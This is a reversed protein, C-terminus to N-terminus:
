KRSRVDSSAIRVDSNALDIEIARLGVCLHPYLQHIYLGDTVAVLSRDWIAEAVWETGGEILMHEWLWACGWQCLVELFSIRPTAVPAKRATSTVRFVGPQIEEVSCVNGREQQSWTAMKTYRNSKKVTNSYVETTESGWATHLLTNSEQCWQWPHIRYTEGVYEGMSHVRLCSPCIDEVAEWWLSFDSDTPEEKPWRMSSHSEGVARHQFVTPNIRLGSASLIDSFFILQLHVRVWNLRLLAERSHGQKIFVLM